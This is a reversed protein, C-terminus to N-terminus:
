KARTRDRVDLYERCGDVGKTGSRYINNIYDPLGYDLESAREASLYGGGIPMRHSRSNYYSLNRKVIQPPFEEVGIGQWADGSYRFFVYPPAPRGWTDYDGCLMPTASLYWVGGVRNISQPNLGMAEWTATSRWESVPARLTNGKLPRGLGVDSFERDLPNGLITGRKVVARTGDFMVVEEDWSPGSACGALLSAFLAAFFIRAITPTNM